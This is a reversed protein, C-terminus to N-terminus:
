LDELELRLAETRSGIDELEKLETSLQAELRDDATGCLGTLRASTERLVKMQVALSAEAGTFAVEAASRDSANIAERAELVRVWARARSLVGYRNLVAAPSAPFGPLVPHDVGDVAIGGAFVGERLLIGEALMREYARAGAELQPMLETLQDSGMAQEAYSGPDPRMAVDIFLFIGLAGAAQAAYLDLMHPAAEDGYLHRAAFEMFSFAEPGLKRQFPLAAWKWFPRGEVLSNTRQATGKGVDSRTDGEDSLRADRYPDDSDLRICTSGPAELNWTYEAMGLIDLAQLGGSGGGTMWLGDGGRGYTCSLRFALNRPNVWHALGRTGVTEEWSQAAEAPGSCHVMYADEPIQLAVAGLRDRYIRNAAASLDWLAYPRPVLIPKSNPVERRMAEYFRNFVHAQAAAQDNGYRRRCPECRNHWGMNGTDPMHLCLFMGGAGASGPMNAAIELAAEGFCRDMMEDRSWCWYAVPDKCSVCVDLDPRAEEKPAWGLNGHSPFTFGWLGREFAYDFVQRYWPQLAEGAQAHRAKGAHYSMFVNIKHRLLWDIQAKAVRLGADPESPSKKDRSAVRLAEGLRTWTFRWRADPWDRIRGSVACTTNGERRILHRFTVCAYLMGVPDCGWVFALKSGGDEGFRIQYGQPGPDDESLPFGSAECMQALLRNEDPRGVLILVSRERDTGVLEGVSVVPLSVGSALRVANNIENAGIQAQRSPEDALVIVALARGDRVLDLRGDALEVEKPTPIIDLTEAMRTGEPTVSWAWAPLGALSLWVALGHM